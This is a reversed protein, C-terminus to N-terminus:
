LGGSGIDIDKKITELLREALEQQASFRLNMDFLVRIEAVNAELESQNKKVKDQLEKNGKQIAYIKENLRAQSRQCEAIAERLNKEIVEM